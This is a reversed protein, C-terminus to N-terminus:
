RSFWVVFGAFNQLFSYMHLSNQCSAFISLSSPHTSSVSLQQSGLPTDFELNELDAVGCPPIKDGIPDDKHTLRSFDDFPDDNIRSDDLAVYSDLIKNYLLSDHDTGSGDIAQSEGAM